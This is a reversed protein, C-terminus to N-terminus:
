ASVEPYIHPSAPPNANVLFRVTREYLLAASAAPDITGLYLEPRSGIRLYVPQGYQVQVDFTDPEADLFTALLERVAFEVGDPTDAQTVYGVAAPNAADNCGTVEALYWREDPQYCATYSPRTM